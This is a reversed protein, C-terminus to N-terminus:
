KHLANRLDSHTENRQSEVRPKTRESIPTELHPRYFMLYMYSGNTIVIVVANLISPTKGGTEKVGSMQPVLVYYNIVEKRKQFSSMQRLSSKETM